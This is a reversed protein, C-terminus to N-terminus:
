NAILAAAGVVGVVRAAEGLNTISSDYCALADGPLLWPDYQDRDARTRMEEIRREIVVSDQTMPNRSFLAASRAASTLRAGGVCNAAVVAQMFRTGYPVERADRGIASPANGTAPQTLNSLFLSIGPPSIPSPVMLDSQFCNRSHVIVADETLLTVDDFSQGTIAGRMDLWYSRGDRQLEVASLDADPRVGGAARLAVSLNRNEGAAGLASQRAQDIEDGRTGGIDVPRPEFVAGSVAIRVPAFDRLRVSLRPPQTYFAGDVLAGAIADEIQEVTRGQAAIPALFPLRLMGDRSIVYADTFTADDAVRIDLLDGRSLRESFLASPASGGSAGALASVGQKGLREDGMAPLCRQLNMVTSRNQRTDETEAPLDRYEAQFALGERVPEPNDPTGATGCAALTLGVSLCFSRGSRRM